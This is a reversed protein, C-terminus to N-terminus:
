RELIRLLPSTSNKRELATETLPKKWHACVFDGLDYDHDYRGRDDGYDSYPWQDRTHDSPWFVDFKDMDFIFETWFIRVQINIPIM